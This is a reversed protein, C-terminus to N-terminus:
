AGQLSPRAIGHPVPNLDDVPECGDQWTFEVEIDDGGTAAIFEDLARASQLLAAQMKGEGNDLEGVSMGIGICGHEQSRWGLSVDGAFNVVHLEVSERGNKNEFAYVKRRFRPSDVLRGRLTDVKVCSIGRQNGMWPLELSPWSRKLTGDDNLLNWEGFTGQETSQGRVCRIKKM